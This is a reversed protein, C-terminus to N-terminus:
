WGQEGDGRFGLFVKATNALTANSRHDIQAFPYLGYMPSNHSNAAFSSDINLLSALTATQDFLDRLLSNDITPGPAISANGPHPKEPSMSPNTVLWDILGRLYVYFFYQSTDNVYTQLTEVFFQSAGQYLPYIRKAFDM